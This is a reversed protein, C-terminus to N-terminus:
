VKEKSQAQSPRIADKEDQGVFDTIPRDKFPDVVLKKDVDVNDETDVFKGSALM